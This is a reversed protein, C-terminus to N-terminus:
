SFATRTTRTAASPGARSSATARTSPGAPAFAPQSGTELRLRRYSRRRAEDVITELRSGVGKRLHEQLLGAIDPGSLDDLRIEM